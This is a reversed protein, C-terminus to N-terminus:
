PQDVVEYKIGCGPGVHNGPPIYQLRQIMYQNPLYKMIGSGFKHIVAALHIPLM